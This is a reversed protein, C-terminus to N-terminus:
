RNLDGLTADAPARYRRKADSMRGDAATLTWRRAISILCKAKWYLASEVKRHLSRCGYPLWRSWLRVPQRDTRRTLSARDAQPTFAGPGKGVEGRDNGFRPDSKDPDPTTPRM